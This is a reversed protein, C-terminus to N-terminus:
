SGFQAEDGDLIRKALIASRALTTSIPLDSMESDCDLSNDPYTDLGDTKQENRVRHENRATTPNIPLMKADVFPTALGNHV